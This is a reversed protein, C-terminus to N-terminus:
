SEAEGEPPHVGQARALLPLWGPYDEPALEALM